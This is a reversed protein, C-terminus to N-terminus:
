PGPEVRISVDRAGASDTALIVRVRGQGCRPAPAAPDRPSFVIERREATAPSEESRMPTCWTDCKGLSNLTGTMRAFAAQTDTTHLLTAQLGLGTAGPALAVAAADPWRLATAFGEATPAGQDAAFGDASAALAAQLAGCMPVAATIASRPSLMRFSSVLAQIDASQSPSPTDSVITLAAAAVGDSAVHWVAVQDVPTARIRCSQVAASLAGQGGGRAEQCNVTQVKAQEATLLERAGLGGADFRRICARMPRAGATTLGPHTWCDTASPDAAWGTPLTALVVRTADIELALPTAAAAISAWLTVFM